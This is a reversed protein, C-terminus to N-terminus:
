LSLGKTPMLDLEKLITQNVERLSHIYSYISEGKNTKRIRVFFESVTNQNVANKYDTAYLVPLMVDQIKHTRRINRTSYSALADYNGILILYAKDKLYKSYDKYFKHIASKDQPLNVLVLDAQKLIFESLSNIGSPADIWTLDYNSNSASLIMGLSFQQIEEEDDANMFQSASLFELNSRYITTTYDSIVDPKFLKSKILNKLTVVGGYNMENNDNINGYLEELLSQETQPNILLSKNSHDLAMLSSLAIVNSTSAGKGAIPSWSVINTKSM